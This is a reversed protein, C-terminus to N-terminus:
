FAKSKDSPIFRKLVLVIMSCIGYFINDLIQILTLRSGNNDNSNYPNNNNRNSAPNIAGDNNYNGGAILM